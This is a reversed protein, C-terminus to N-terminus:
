PLLVLSFFKYLLKTTTILDLFIFHARFAARMLFLFYFICEIETPFGPPIVVSASGLRLYCLFM